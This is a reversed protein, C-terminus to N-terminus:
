CRMLERTRAAFRKATDDLVEMNEFQMIESDDRREDTDARRREVKAKWDALSRTVYHNLRIKRHRNKDSWAEPVPNHDEDVVPRIMNFIHPTRCGLAYFPKIISKIHHNITMQDPGRYIFNEILLGPPRTAFGNTGYVLWNVALGGYQEFEPLVDLLSDATEPMLFEDADIVAVWRAVAEYNEVFHQYAPIQGPRQPWDIVTVVDGYKALIERTNDTSANDYIVFHQVGVALHFAIWESVYEAENKLIAAIALDFM